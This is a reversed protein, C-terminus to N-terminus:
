LGLLFNITDELMGVREEATSESVVVEGENEWYSEFNEEIMEKAINSRTQFYVEEAKYVTNGEEDVETKENKHLFVDILGDGLPYYNIRKFPKHSQAIEMLLVEKWNVKKVM